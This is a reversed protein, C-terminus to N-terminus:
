SGDTGGTIGISEGTVYGAADSLLYVVLEAVEDPRGLRAMPVTARWREQVEEPTTDLLESREERIRAVMPTEILGPVVANVRVGQPALAVATSRTFSIVAAKTAAYHSAMPRLARGATSSFNVISGGGRASMERAAAQMVFFAARANVSFIHDFDEPTIELVPQTKMVGAASVLGDIGGHAEVCREVIRPAQSVDALDTVEYAAGLDNAVRELSGEDRDVLLLKAGREAALRACAEGMGSAAGTVLVSKSELTTVPHSRGSQVDTADDLYSRVMM